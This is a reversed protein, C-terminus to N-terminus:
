TKYSHINLTKVYVQSALTGMNLGVFQKQQNLLKEGWLAAPQSQVTINLPYYLGTDSLYIGIYTVSGGGNNRVYIRTTYWVGAKRSSPDIKVLTAVWSQNQTIDVTGKYHDLQTAMDVYAANETATSAAAQVQELDNEMCSLGAPAVPFYEAVELCFTNYPTADAMVNAHYLAGGKDINTFALLACNPTKDPATAPYTWTGSANGPTGTDHKCSWAKSLLMNTTLATSPIGPEPNVVPPPVSNPPPTTTLEVTGSLNTVSGDTNTITASITAM